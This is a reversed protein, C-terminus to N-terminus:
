EELQQDSPAISSPPPPPDSAPFSEASMYDIDDEAFSFLDEVPPEIPKEREGVVRPLSIPLSNQHQGGLRVAEEEVLEWRLVKGLPEWTGDTLEIVRPGESARDGPSGTPEIVSYTNPATDL